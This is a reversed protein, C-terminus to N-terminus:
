AGLNITRGNGGAKLVADAIRLANIGDSATVIPQKDSTFSRVIHKAQELFMDKKRYKFLKEYGQAGKLTFTGFIEPDFPKSKKLRTDGFQLTGKPGIFDNLSAVPTGSAVGWSWILTHQHGSKFNLIVSGTDAGVSTEDLKLTSSQVSKVDGFIQLAFDYNHIAGDILPGGGKHIDRFWQHPPKGGAAFRWIVPSGLSDSQIIQKFKGWMSDFRRVFGITFKVGYKECITQMKKAESMKLAIPKECFVDKGLSAAHIVPKAHQYTPTCIWVADIERIRLLKRYDKEFFPIDFDASFKKATEISVDCAAIIKVSRMKSLHKAHQRAIGGCGIFGIRLM